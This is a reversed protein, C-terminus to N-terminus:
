EISPFASCNSLCTAGLTFRAPKMNLGFRSPDFASVFAFRRRPLLPAREDAPLQILEGGADTWTKRAGELIEVRACQLGQVRHRTMGQGCM